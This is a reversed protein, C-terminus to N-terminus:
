FEVKQKTYYYRQIDWEKVSENSIVGWGYLENADSLAFIATGTYFLKKVDFNIIIQTYGEMQCAYNVGLLIGFQEGHGYYKGESKIVIASGTPHVYVETVNECILSLADCYVVDAGSNLINYPNKGYGYLEGNETLLLTTNYTRIIKVFKMGYDLRTIERYVEHTGDTRQGNYGQCWVDGNEDLGLLSDTIVYVDKFSIGESVRTWPFTENKNGIFGDVEPTGCVWINVDIDVACGYQLGFWMSKFKAVEIKTPTLIPKEDGTGAIGYINQGWVYLNGEKDICACVGSKFYVETVKVGDLIKIYDTEAVTSGNGLQGYSNDGYGWLQGNVDVAFITRGTVTFYTMDMDTDAKTPETLYFSKGNGIMMNVNSGRSYCEGNDEMVLLLEGGSSYVSYAYCADDYILYPFLKCDTDGGEEGLLKGVYGFIYVKGTETIVISTCQTTSIRVAKERITGIVDPYTKNNNDQRTTRLGSGLQGYNNYGWSYVIGNEDIALGFKEGLSVDVIKDDCCYVRYMSALSVTSFTLKQSSGLGLGNEGWTYLTGDTSIAASNSGGASVKVFKYDSEIKLPIRSYGPSPVGLQKFFNDGWGWVNGDVDLALVFMSAFSGGVEAYQFKISSAIPTPEEFCDSEGSLGYNFTGWQYLTNDSDIAVFLCSNASVHIFEKDPMIRVPKKSSYRDGTGLTGNGNNGWTYLGGDRYIAACSQSGVAILSRDSANWKAYLTCSVADDDERAKNKFNQDYYWGDFEFGAKYPVPLSGLKEGKAIKIKEVATSSNTEFSIKAKGSCSSLFVAAVIGTVVFLCIIIRKKM